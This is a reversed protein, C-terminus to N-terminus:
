VRRPDTMKLARGAYPFFQAERESFVCSNQVCWEGTFPEHDVHFKVEGLGGTRFGGLPTEKRQMVQRSGM